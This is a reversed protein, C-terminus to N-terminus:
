KSIVNGQYDLSVAVQRGDKTAKGQWVGNDDKKLDTVNTFGKNEIRSQAEGETFSNRGAVPQPPQPTKSTNIANNQPEKAAPVPQQAFAATGLLAMAALAIFFSKPM